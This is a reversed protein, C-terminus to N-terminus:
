KLVVLMDIPLSVKSTEGARVVIQQSSSVTKGDRVVAATLNYVFSQGAALTPTTFERVSSTLTTAFGDITLTAEAPLSVVITAPAAIMAEKGKPPMAPPPSTQVPPAPMATGCGGCGGCATQCGGCSSQCCCSQCCSSQCCSAQYGCCGGSQGQCGGDCGNKRGFLAPTEPAGAMAMMMVVSYM